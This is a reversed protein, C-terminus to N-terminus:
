GRHHDDDNTDANRGDVCEVNSHNTHTIERYMCVVDVCATCM